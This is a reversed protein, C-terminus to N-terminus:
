VWDNCASKPHQYMANVYKFEVVPEYTINCM